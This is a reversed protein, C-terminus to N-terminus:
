KLARPLVLGDAFVTRKDMRRDGNTAQLVVVRGVPDHEHKAQTAPMYGPRQLLWLRGESDWDIVVPDEILPESAVLELHYGPPMFITKLEDSPSLVPSENSVRALAPPWQRPAQYGSGTAVAGAILATVLTLRSCTM